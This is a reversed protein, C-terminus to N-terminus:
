LATIKIIFVFTSVAKGVYASTVAGTVTDLRYIHQTLIDVFYLKQTRHDWHPGETLRYSDTM